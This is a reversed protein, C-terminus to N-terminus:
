RKPNQKLKKYHEYRSDFGREGDMVVFSEIGNELNDSLRDLSVRTAATLDAMLAVSGSLADTMPSYDASGGAGVRPMTGIAQSVDAATLSGVTNNRQAHDILRLVPALAPNAVAEHNAVFENAHVVGVEEHDNPRRSTFGGEYYGAAEAEHQKKITAIQIAGAATAMAAAIPGLWFAVKAASAYANIAAVATQAIAQALEMKMAKDNYKKKIKAVEAEKQEELKKKKKENKGAAQIEKDYRKEIRALELDRSANSYSMYLNMYGALITYASEALKGIDEFLIEWGKGIDQLLTEYDNKLQELQDAENSRAERRKASEKDRYKDKIAQLAKQYEEESLIGADHLADLVDIEAQLQQTGDNLYEKRVRAVEEALKKQKDLQDQAIRKQLEADYRQYEESGEEYADRKEEIYRKDEEFLRQNLAVENQFLQCNPDYFEKVINDEFDHHRKEIEELNLQRENDEATKKASAQQALLRVYGTLDIKNHAEHTEIQKQLFETDLREKEELYKAYDITGTIYSTLNQAEYADYESKLDGLDKRLKDLALKAEDVSRGSHNAPSPTTKPAQYPTTNTPTDKVAQKQLDVGYSNLIAKERAIIDAMKNEADALDKSAKATMDTATNSTTGWSTTYTHGIGSNANKRARDMTGRANDLEIQADAKEKGIEALRERAGELEYKRTLSKIYNDLATQNEKYKGTTEDLYANYGPVIENLKDIAKQREYLSLTENRAASVLIDLQTKEDAMQSKADERIKGLERESASVRDTARALDILVGVLLAVGAVVLGWPNSMMAVKIKNFGVVVKEQWFVKLKDIVISKQMYLNYAIIASTLTLITGKCKIFIDFLTPLVSILKSSWNALIGLSPNLKEILEIGTEKIKNQLQAMKAASTDSNIAAQETATVTGTVAETYEKVKQTNDSLISAIGFAEEGFMKKLFSAGGGVTEKEADDVQAKLNDLATSLGVVKPNTEAAGTQLVLFFKKLGTGAVEGKIGKEGLMEISGVLEEFSVNASAAATGAKLVAASQQEVNAAGFKSGAALVNVYRAAQDAGEGYQNLSTTMADVAPQLDMKAATALRLAEITVENLAEKDSLLEPKNSGVLMYAELIEKSSQTIRLGSEHMTTALQEAQQTLWAISSDDLGTLARLNAQSDEKDEFDQRLGSLKDNVTNITDSIIAYAGWSKTIGRALRSFFGEQESHIERLSRLEENVQRLMRVYEEWEKTGRVVRGSDLETNIRKLTRRLEKPTAKDLRLMDARINAANTRMNDMQKNVKQLEKNIRDVERTDGKKFAEAFKKRLDKTQEELKTFKERAEQDNVKLIVEAEERTM